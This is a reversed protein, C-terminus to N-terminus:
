LALAPLIYRYLSLASLMGLGAWVALPAAGPVRGELWRGLAVALGAAAVLALAFVPLDGAM